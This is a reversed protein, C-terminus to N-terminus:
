PKKMLLSISGSYVGIVLFRLFIINEILEYEIFAFLRFPTHLSITNVLQIVVIAIIQKNPATKMFAPKSWCITCDAPYRFHSDHWLTELWLLPHHVTMFGASRPGTESANIILNQIHLHPMYSPCDNVKEHTHVEIISAVKWVSYCCVLARERLVM